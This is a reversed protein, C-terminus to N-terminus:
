GRVIPPHQRESRQPPSAAPTLVQLALSGGAQDRPEQVLCNGEGLGSGQCQRGVM